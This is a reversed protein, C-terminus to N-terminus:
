IGRWDLAKQLADLHTKQDMKEFMRQEKKWGFQKALLHLGQWTYNSHPCRKAIEKYRDLLNPQPHYNHEELLKKLEEEIPHQEFQLQPCWATTKDPNSPLFSQYWRHKEVVAIRHNRNEKLDQYANQRIEQIISRDKTILELITELEEATTYTYGNEGHRITSAFTGRNTCISIVGQTTYELYKGDSRGLAFDEEIVHAIGIDLSSIFQLYEEFDGTPQHDVDIGANIFISAIEQTTMISFSYNKLSPCKQLFAALEKADLVHGGSGVWGLRLPKKIEKQQPLPIEWLQNMYVNTKSNYIRYKQQLFPSSFQVGDSFTMFDEIIRQNNPDAYFHHLMTSSPFNKFDDSIETITPRGMKKRHQIIQLLGEDAIMHVLLIEAQAAKLYVDPHTMQVIEVYAHESLAQYPWLVRHYYDGNNKDQGHLIATIKYTM